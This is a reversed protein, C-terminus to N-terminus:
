KHHADDHDVHDKASADANASKPKNVAKMFQAWDDQEKQKEAVQKEAVREAARDSADFNYSSGGGGGGHAYLPQSCFATTVILLTSFYIKNM